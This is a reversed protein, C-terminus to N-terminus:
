CDHLIYNKKSILIVNAMYAYHLDELKDEYSNM